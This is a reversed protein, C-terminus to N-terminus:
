ANNNNIRKVDNACIIAYLKLCTEYFIKKSNKSDQKSYGLELSPM